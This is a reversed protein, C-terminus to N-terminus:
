IIITQCSLLMKWHWEDCGLYLMVNKIQSDNANEYIFCLEILIMQNLM